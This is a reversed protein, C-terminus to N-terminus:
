RIFISIKPYFNITIVFNDSLKFSLSDGNEDLYLELLDERYLDFIVSNNKYSQLRISNVTLDFSLTVREDGNVFKAIQIVDDIECDCGYIAMFDNCSPIVLKTNNMKIKGQIDLERFSFCFFDTVIQLIKELFDM